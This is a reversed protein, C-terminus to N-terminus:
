LQVILQWTNCFTYTIFWETKDPHLFRCSCTHSIFSTVSVTHTHTCTHPNMALATVSMNTNTATTLMAASIAPILKRGCWLVSTLAHKVAIIILLATSLGQHKQQM